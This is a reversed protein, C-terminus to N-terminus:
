QTINLKKFESFSIPKINIPEQEKIEKMKIHEHYEEISGLRKYRNKCLLLQNPNMKVKSGADGVRTHSELPNQKKYNKLTAFVSDSRKRLTNVKEQEGGEGEESQIYKKRQEEDQRKKELEKIKQIGENM